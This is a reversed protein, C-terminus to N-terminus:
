RSESASITLRQRGDRLPAATWHNNVDLEQKKTDYVIKVGRVTFEIETATGPEFETRLEVLEAKLKALPNASDPQLNMSEFTHSKARLVELEKVPNMTMRPGDSTSILKLDLPISMSQNFPMGPTVTQWWGIQIRRGDKEPIDSFTQAAYFNKGIGGHGPLLKTEPTFTTGDFSGIMYESSAATLIWKKKSADDDVALEFLDPCEFLGETKSTYKWDKLNSSTFFYIMYHKDIERVFLTMVWQKTPAHWIVKPDRIGGAEALHPIVPNGQYKTVSRGDTSYALNQSQNGNATYILVIPPKGQQGFGSTNNWDVVASGSFMMGMEDPALKDGLEDWHVLDKSVAHGWHKNGSGWGYPNHQMHYEGNFFVM